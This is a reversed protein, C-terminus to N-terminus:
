GEFRRLIEDQLEESLNVFYDSYGGVRVLIDRHNEPYKRAAELREKNMVNFQLEFGGRSFHAKIMDSVAVAIKEDAQGVPLTVNVVVAGIARALDFKEVTELMATPGRKAMGQVAALSDSLAQGALRGDPTPGTGSGFVGHMVWSLFGPVYKFGYPNTYKGVEAFYFEILEGALEDAEANNTGYKPLHTRIYERLDPAQAFNNKVIEAFDTLTKRRDEFVIKRVAILSDVVTPLGVLQPYFFYYRAGGRDLDMEKELCDNVFLSLFPFAGQTQRFFAYQNQLRVNERIMEALRCKITEKLQDFTATPPSNSLVNEMVKGFNMYDAVVWIGSCGCTTMETCTCHLHWRAEEPKVGQMILGRTIVRDNFFAPHGYGDSVMRAAKLLLDDPTEENVALGLSPNHLRVLDATELMLCTLDNVANRGDRTKGGLMLSMPVWILESLKIYFAGLLEIVRDRTLEGSAMGREYYPLLVQDLRGLGMLGANYQCLMVAFYISQLAEHFTRSPEAPVRSAIAAYKNGVREAEEAHRKQFDIAAQLTILGGRLFDERQFREPGAPSFDKVLNDLRTQVEQQIGNLGVTLLKSYEIAMHASIGGMPVVGFVWSENKLSDKGFHPTVGIILEEPRVVVRGDELGRKFGHATRIGPYHINQGVVDKPLSNNCCFYENEKWGHRKEYMAALEPYKSLGRKLGIESKM